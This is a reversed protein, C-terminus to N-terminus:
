GAFASTEASPADTSDEAEAPEPATTEPAPTPDSPNTGQPKKKPKASRAEARADSLKGYVRGAELLQEQFKKDLKALEREGEESVDLTIRQAKGNETCKGPITRTVQHTAETKKGKLALLVDDLRFHVAVM